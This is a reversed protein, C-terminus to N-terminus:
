LNLSFFNSYLGFSIEHFDTGNSILQFNYRYRVYFTFINQLQFLGASFEACMGNYGLFNTFADIGPSIYKIGPVQIIQKYGFRLFNKKESEFIYSYEVGLYGAPYNYGISYFNILPIEKSISWHHSGHAFVYTPSPIAFVVGGLCISFLGVDQEPTIVLGKPLSVVFLESKVQEGKKNKVILSYNFSASDLKLKELEIEFKHNDTFVKSVDFTTKNILIKSICSDGTAFSLVFKHPLEPTIFSDIVYVDFPVSTSDQQAFLKFAILFIILFKPLRMTM